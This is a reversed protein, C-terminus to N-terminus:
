SETALRSTTNTNMNTNRKSKQQIFFFYILLFVEKKFFFNMERTSEFKRTNIKMLNENITSSIAHKYDFEEINLSKKLNKIHFQIFNDEFDGFKNALVIQSYIFRFQISHLKFSRFNIKVRILINM